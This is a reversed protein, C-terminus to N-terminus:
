PCNFGPPKPFGETRVVATVNILANDNHGDSVLPASYNAYIPWEYIATFQLVQDPCIDTPFREPPNFTGDPAVHEGPVPPPPLESFKLATDVHTKINNCDFLAVIRSCLETKLDEKTSINQIQGTRYLRAIDDVVTELYQNAFFLLSTEIIAFILLFFPGGIIAFEVATTGEENKNFRRVVKLPRSMAMLNKFNSIMSMQRMGALDTETLM